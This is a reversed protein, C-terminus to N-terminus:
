LLTNKKSTFTYNNLSGYFYHTKYILEKQQFNKILKSQVEQSYKLFDFNENFIKKNLIKEFTEKREFKPISNLLNFDTEINKSYLYHALFARVYTNGSKPYSAIWIIKKM